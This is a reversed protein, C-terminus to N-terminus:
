EPKPPLSVFCFRVGFPTQQFSLPLRGLASSQGSQYCGPLRAEAAGRNEVALMRRFRGGIVFQQAVQASRRSSPQDGADRTKDARVDQLRQQARPFRAELIQHVQDHIQAIWSVTPADLVMQARAKGAQRDDNDLACHTPGFPQHFDFADRDRGVVLRRQWWESPPSLLSLICALSADRRETLRCREMARAALGRASSRGAGRLRAVFEVYSAVTMEPYLPPTEPLYGIMAQAAHIDRGVDYGGIRVSGATPQFYGALMRMTTTKGAGNAGLIAVVEGQHVSFSVGDVATFSGFLKVLGEADIIGV